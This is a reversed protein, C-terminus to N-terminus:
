EREIGLLEVDFDLVAGPPIKPPQGRPGYGLEPPIVLRRRGGSRMTALGEDWGRIVEGRGLTFVFPEGRDRSSDFPTGDSLTGVYHVVVREGPQPKSGKGVVLDRFKLGTASKELPPDAPQAPCALVLAALVPVFAPLTRLSM